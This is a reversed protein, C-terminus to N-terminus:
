HNAGNEDPLVFTGVYATNEDLVGKGPDSFVWSGEIGDERFALELHAMAIGADVRQLEFGLKNGSYGPTLRLYLHARSGDADLLIRWPQHNSASPGLRVMRLPDAWIGAKEPSLPRSFSGVFFLQDFPKRQDSKSLRRMLRDPLDQKDAPYGLPTVAPIIEEKGADALESFLKRNFLGGLWCTGLGHSTLALMTQEFLYGLDMVGEPTNVVVAGLFAQPHHIVGYTGIRMGKESRGKELFTLVPRVRHGFPGTAAALRETEQEIIDIAQDNLLRKQFTRISRRNEM